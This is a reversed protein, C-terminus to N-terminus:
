TYHLTSVETQVIPEQLWSWLLKLSVTTWAYSEQFNHIAEDQPVRSTILSHREGIRVFLTSVLTTNFSTYMEIM